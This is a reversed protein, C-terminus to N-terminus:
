RFRGGATAALSRSRILFTICTKARTRCDMVSPSEHGFRPLFLLHNLLLRFLQPQPLCWNLANAIRLVRTANRINSHLFDSHASIKRKRSQGKKSPPESVGAILIVALSISVKRVIMTSRHTVHHHRETASAGAVLFLLLVNTLVICRFRLPGARRPLVLRPVLLFTVPLNSVHLHQRLSLPFSIRFLFFRLSHPWQSFLM